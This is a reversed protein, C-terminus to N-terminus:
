TLNRYFSPNNGSAEDDLFAREKENESEIEEEDAEDDSAMLDIGRSEDESDIERSDSDANGEKSIWSCKLSDTKTRNVATLPEQPRSLKLCLHTSLLFSSKTSIETLYKVFEELLQDPDGQSVFCKPEKYGPANSFVSVSLPIHASEWTLKRHKERSQRKGQRLLVRFRISPPLSLLTM